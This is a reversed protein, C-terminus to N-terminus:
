ANPLAKFRSRILTSAITLAVSLILALVFIAVLTLTMFIFAALFQGLGRLYGLSNGCLLVYMLLFYISLFNVKADLIMGMYNAYFIKLLLGTVFLFLFTGPIGFNAYGEAYIGIPFTANFSGSEPALSPAVEVELRTTGYITPKNPFALRPLYTYFIDEVVTSGFHFTDVNNLTEQFMESMDFTLSLFAVPRIAEPIPIADAAPSDDVGRAMGLAAGLAVGLACAVAIKM